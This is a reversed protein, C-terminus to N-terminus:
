LLPRVLDEIKDESLTGLETRAIRGSRDVVLTYPLGGLENGVARGLDIAETDGILVPYNIGMEAAFQRVKDAQDVAIGVVQLGSAGLETQKKVLLPIEERCPACWTAWFNVLVVKGKWQAMGQNQGSLDPMSVQMLVKDAGPPLDPGRNAPHLFWGAALSVAAAGVLIALHTARNM